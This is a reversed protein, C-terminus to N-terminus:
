TYPYADDYLYNLLRQKYLAHKAGLSIRKFAM